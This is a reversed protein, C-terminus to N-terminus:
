VFEDLQSDGEGADDEKKKDKEPPKRPDEKIKAREDERPRTPWIPHMPTVDRIEAM